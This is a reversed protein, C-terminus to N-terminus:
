KVIPGVCFSLYRLSEQVLIFTIRFTFEKDQNFILRAMIFIELGAPCDIHAICFKQLHMGSNRACVRSEHENDAYGPLVSGVTQVLDGSTGSVGNNTLGTWMRVHTLVPFLMFYNHVNSM